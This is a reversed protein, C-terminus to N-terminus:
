ERYVDASMQTSLFQNTYDPINTAKLTYATGVSTDNFEVVAYKQKVHIVSKAAVTYKKGDSKFYELVFKNPDIVNSGIDSTFEVRVKNTEIFVASNIYNSTASSGSGAVTQSLTGSQVEGTISKIGALFQLNYNQNNSMVTGSDLYIKLLSPTNQDLVVSDITLGPVIITANVADPDLPKNFYAFILAENIAAAYDLKLVTETIQTGYFPAKTESLKTGSLNDELDKYIFEFESDKKLTNTVFVIDIQRGKLDDTGTFAVKFPTRDVNLTKDKLLYNSLNSASNESVPNSFTLRVINSEIPQVNIVEFKQNESANGAFSKSDGNARGLFVGFVSQMSGSIKLKYNAGNLLSYNDLWIELAYDNSPVTKVNMNSFSGDVVLKDDQYLDFYLPLAANNNIPHTFTVLVKNKSLAKLQSIVFYNSTVVDEFYGNFTTTLSTLNFSSDQLSRLNVTYQENLQLATTLTLVKDKISLNVIDLVKGAQNVVSINSKDISVAENFEIIVTNSATANINSITTPLADKPVIGLGLAMEYEVSGLSVLRQAATVQSDKLKIALSNYLADVVLGRNYKFNDTIRNAYETGKVIGKSYSFSYVTEWTFDKGFEYGLAVLLMKLFAKESVFEDPLFKGTDYGSIINMSKAYAIYPQYWKDVAVDSFVQSNYKSSNKILEQEAGLFRIIFTAAETRRLQSDLNFSNGTGRLLNIQSLINANANTDSAFVPLSTLVVLIAILVALIKRNMGDGRKLRYNM